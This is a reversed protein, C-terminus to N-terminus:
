LFGGSYMMMADTCAVGGGLVIELYFPPLAM